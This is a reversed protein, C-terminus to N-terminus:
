VGLGEVASDKRTRAIIGKPLQEGEGDSPTELKPEPAGLSGM